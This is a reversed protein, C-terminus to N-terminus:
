REQLADNMPVQLWYIQEKIQVTAYFYAVKTQCCSVAHSTPYFARINLVGSLVLGM